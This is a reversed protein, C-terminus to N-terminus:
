EKNVSANFKANEEFNDRFAETLGQMKDRFEDGVKNFDKYQNIARPSITILLETRDSTEGKSGFLPGIFPLKSLYPVGSNGDTKSDQILGGLIITDGSQIAVTSEISRKLFSRQGTATDLAGVDTVEQMIDMVVLGGSNVRPKVKLQVGTDKLEVNQTLVGSNNTNVTQSTQIPQQNGVQITAERNDQVLVSPSSLSKVNSRSALMNIVARWDSGSFLYSFGPVSRGVTGGDSMSLLGGKDGLGEVGGKSNFFWEVGYNLEDKLTVEWISVEVLVQAPLKDMKDLAGRISRWEKPAAMVLLSNNAEDAVIRTGLATVSTSSGSGASNSTSASDSGDTGLETKGLGPATSGSTSPKSSSGSSGFIQGLLDALDKAQGNEVSYVYLQSGAQEDEVGLGVSDFRKIWSSVTSLQSGNPAVVMISNIEDLTVLKTASALGGLEANGMVKELREVLLKADLNVIEYIGFSMGSLVDVDLMNLTRLANKMQPASAGLMLINRLPDVRLISDKMGLPALIKEAETVSLFKLPIIRVSYGRTAVAERLAVPVESRIGVSKGVRYIGNSGQVLAIGQAELASELMDLLAEQPVPETSVLTIQGGVDADLAYPVQLLDGLIVTLVAELPASEFNVNVGGATAVANQKKSPINAFNGTGRQELLTKGSRKKDPADDLREAVIKPNTKILSVAPQEVQTDPTTACATLFLFTCAVSLTRLSFGARVPNYSMM